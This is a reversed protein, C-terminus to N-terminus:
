ILTVGKPVRVQYSLYEGTKQTIRQPLAFKSKSYFSVWDLFTLHYYERALEEVRPTPLESNFTFHHVLEIQLPKVTNADEGQRRIAQSSFLLASNGGREVVCQGRKPNSWSSGDNVFMRRISSKNVSVVDVALKQPLDRRGVFHQPLPQIGEEPIGKEFVEKMIQAESRDVQGDKYLVIRQLNFKLGPEKVAFTESYEKCIRAISELLKEFALHTLNEGGAPVTDYAIFRGYGDTVATFVSVQSKLKRRRSVDFCAYATIGSNFPYVYGDAPKNCLWVASHRGFLKLYIQPVLNTLIPTNGPIRRATSEELCQTRIPKVDELIASPNFFIDKSTYYLANEWAVDPLVVFVIPPEGTGDESAKLIDSVTLNFAEIYDSQTAGTVFRVEGGRSISGFNMQRYRLEIQKMTETIYNQMSSPCVVFYKGSRSGTYPEAGSTFADLIQFVNMPFVKGQKKLMVLFERGSEFTASSQAIKKAETPLQEFSFSKGLFGVSAGATKLLGQVLQVKRPPAYGKPGLDKNGYEYEKFVCTQPYAYIRSEDTFKVKYVSDGKGVPVGRSGWIDALDYEKYEQVTQMYTGVVFARRWDMLVRVPLPEDETACKAEHVSLPIMVKTGPDVWLSPYGDVIEPSIRFSEKMPNPLSVQSLAIFSSASPLYGMRKMHSRFANRWGSDYVHLHEPYRLQIPEGVEIQVDQLRPMKRQLEEKAQAITSLVLVDGRISTKLGLPMHAVDLGRSSLRSVLSMSERWRAASDRDIVTGSMMLPTALVSQPVKETSRWLNLHESM